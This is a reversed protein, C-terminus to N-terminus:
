GQAGDSTVTFLDDICINMGEGAFFDLLKALTTADVRKPKQTFVYRVTQRPLGVKEGIEQFNYRDGRSAELQSLLPLPNLMVQHTM